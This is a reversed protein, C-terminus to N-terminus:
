SNATVNATTRAVFFVIAWALLIIILGIVAGAIGKKAKEARDSEGSTAAVIISVIIMVVAVLTMISLVWRIVNLTTAKLDAQGLGIDVSEISFTTAAHTTHPAALCFIPLVLLAFFFYKRM